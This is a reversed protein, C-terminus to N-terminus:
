LTCVIKRITSKCITNEQPVCNRYPRNKAYRVMTVGQIHYIM